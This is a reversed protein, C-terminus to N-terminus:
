EGLREYETKEIRELTIERLIVQRMPTGAQGFARTISDVRELLHASVIRGTKLSVFVHGWYNSVGDTPLKMDMMNVVMRVSNDDSRFFLIACPEGKILTFGQFSTYLPATTFYTDTFLPPFDMAVPDDGEPMVATDGVCTLNGDYGDWRVLVDFTHADFLKVVFSWGELTKPIPSLDVPFHQRKWEDISMDYQFNRTFPIIEYGRIKGRGPSQGKKVYKWVFRDFREAAEIRMIERSFYGDLVRTNAVRGSDNMELYVTRIHYFEKDGVRYNPQLDYPKQLVSKLDTEQTSLVSAHQLSISLSLSLIFRLTKLWGM